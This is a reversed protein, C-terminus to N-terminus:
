GAHPLDMLYALGSTQAERTAWMTALENVPDAVITTLPGGGFLLLTLPLAFPFIAAVLAPASTVALGTL